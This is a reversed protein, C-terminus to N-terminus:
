YSRVGPVSCGQNTYVTRVQCSTGMDVVVYGDPCDPVKVWATYGTTQSMGERSDRRDRDVNVSTVTRSPVLAEATAIGVNECGPGPDAGSVAPVPTQPACSAIAPVAALLMAICHKM